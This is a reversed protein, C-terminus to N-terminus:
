HCDKLIAELLHKGRLSLAINLFYPFGFYSIGTLKIIITYIIQRANSLIKINMVKILIPNNTCNWLSIANM